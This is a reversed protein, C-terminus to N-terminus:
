RQARTSCPPPADPVPKLQKQLSIMNRETETKHKKFSLLFTAGLLGNRGYHGCCVALTELSALAVAMASSGCVASEIGRMPWLLGPNWCGQNCLTM